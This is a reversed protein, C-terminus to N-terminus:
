LLRCQHLCSGSFHTPIQRVIVTAKYRNYDNNGDLNNGLYRIGLREGIKPQLKKFANFLVTFSLYGSIVSGEAQDRIICVKSEGYKGVYTDYSKV